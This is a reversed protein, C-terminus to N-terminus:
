LRDGTCVTSSIWSRVHSADPRPKLLRPLLGPAELPICFPMDDCRTAQAQCTDGSHWRFFGAPIFAM